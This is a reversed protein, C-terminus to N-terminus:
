QATHRRLASLRGVSPAPSTVRHSAWGRERETAAQASTYRGFLPARIEERCEKEGFSGWSSHPFPLHNSRSSQAEAQTRTREQSGDPHRKRFAKGRCRGQSQQAEAQGASSRLRRRRFGFVGSGLGSTESGRLGLFGSVRFRKPVAGWM